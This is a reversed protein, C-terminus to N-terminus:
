RQVRPSRRALLAPCCVMVAGALATVLGIPGCVWVLIGLAHLGGTPTWREGLGAMTARLSGLAGGAAVSFGLALVGAPISVAGLVAVATRRRLLADARDDSSRRRTAVLIALVALLLLGVMGVGAPVAYWTGPFPGATATVEGGRLAVALARGDRGRDDPSGLVSGAVTIAAFSALALTVILIAGPPLLSAARRAVLSGYRRQDAPPMTLEGIVLALLLVAAGVVPGLMAPVGLSLRDIGLPRAGSLMVLAVMVLLGLSFGIWRAAIARPHLGTRETGLTMALILGILVIAVLLVGAGGLIIISGFAASM